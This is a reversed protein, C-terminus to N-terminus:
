DDLIFTVEMNVKYEKIQGNDILVNQDKIWAGTVNRLSSNARQIGDRVAAEFSETSTATIESVRGVSM